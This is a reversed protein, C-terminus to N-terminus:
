VHPAQCSPVQLHSVIKPRCNRCGVKGLILLRVQLFQKQIILDFLLVITIFLSLCHAHLFVVFLEILITHFPVCFMHMISSLTSAKFHFTRYHHSTRLHTPMTSPCAHFFLQMPIPSPSQPNRQFLYCPAYCIYSPSTADIFPPLNHHPPPISSSNQPPPFPLNQMNPVSSTM